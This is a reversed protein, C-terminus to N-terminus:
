AEAAGWVDVVAQVAARDVDGLGDSGLHRQGAAVVESCLAGWHGASGFVHGGHRGGQHSQVVMAKTQRALAVLRKVEADTQRWTESKGIKEFADRSLVVSGGSSPVALAIDEAAQVRSALVYFIGPWRAEADASWMGILRRVAKGSGISMGQYCHVSDARGTVLPVGTRSCCLKDCRRVQPAVPVWTRRDVGVVNGDDDLNTTFWPNEGSYGPFDVIVVPMDNVETAGAGSRKYGVRYLVAIVYGRSGNFLGHEPRLNVTLKVMGGEAYYGILPISGAAGTAAGNRGVHGAQGTLAAKVVRVDEMRLIYSANVMDRDRNFCTAYLTDKGDEFQQRQGPDMGQLSLGQWFDFHEGAKGDRAATLASFLDGESQRMPQDLFWARKVSKYVQRGTMALVTEGSQTASFCLKDKVPPLQKPDGCLVCQGVGTGFPDEEAERAGGRLVQKAAASIHGLLKCGNMWAEDFISCHTHVNEGQLQALRDGKLDEYTKRNRRVGLAADATRGRAAGAAAGTPCFAALAGAKGTIAVLAAALLDITFTKGTGAVGVLFTRRVTQWFDDSADGSLAHKGYAQLAHEVHDCLFARQGANAKQPPIANLSRVGQEADGGFADLLAQFTVTGLDAASTFGEPAERLSREDSASLPEDAFDGSGETVQPREGAEPASGLGGGMEGSPADAERRRASEAPSSAVGRAAASAAARVDEALRAVARPDADDPPERLFSVLADVHTDHEGKVAAHNRTPKHALLAGRCWAESLPWQARVPVGTFVPIGTRTAVTQALSKLPRPAAGDEEGARNNAWYNDLDNSVVSYKGDEGETVNWQGARLSTKQFTRSCHWQQQAGLLFAAEPSSVERQKLLRMNIRQAVSQLSATDDVETGKMLATFIGVAEKVSVEGKCAYGVVYDILRELYEGADLYKRGKLLKALQEPQVAQEAHLAELRAYLEDVDYGDDASWTVGGPVKGVTDSAACVVQTDNNAGWSRGLEPSGQQMRPNDREANLTTM